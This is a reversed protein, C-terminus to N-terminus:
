QAIAARLKRIRDALSPPAGAPRKDDQPDSKELARNIPSGTGELSATMAVMQAALESMQERMLRSGKSLQSAGPADTPPAPLRDFAEEGALQRTLEGIESELRANERELDALHAASDGGISAALIPKLRERLRAVERDRRELKEERDSLTSVLQLVRADLEQARKRERDHNMEADKVRSNADRFFRDKSRREGKLVTIDSNLRDIESERAVLEIQRASSSYSTDEYERSLKEFNQQQSRLMEETQALAAGLAKVREDRKRIEERLGRAEGEIRALDAKADERENAVLKIDKRGRAYRASEAAAREKAAKLELELRRQEMAHDARLSDKEARIEEITLPVSAEIRRKTLMVARRWIAPAVLAALFVASLFGLAFYLLLEIV